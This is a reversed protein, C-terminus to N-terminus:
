LSMMAEIHRRASTSDGRDALVVAVHIQNRLDHRMRVVHQVEQLIDDYEALYWDLQEQLLAAQQEDLQKKSEREITRFLLSDVVFCVICIFAMGGYFSIGSDFMAASIVGSCLFLLQTVPLIVFVKLKGSVQIAHRKLFMDLMLLLFIMAVIGIFNSLVLEGLHSRQMEYYM